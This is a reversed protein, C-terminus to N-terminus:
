VSNEVVKFIGYENKCLTRKGILIHLGDVMPGWKLRKWEGVRGWM